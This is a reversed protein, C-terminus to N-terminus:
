PEHRSGGPAPLKHYPRVYSSQEALTKLRRTRASDADSTGDEPEALMRIQGWCRSDMCGHPGTDENVLCYGRGCKDCFAVTQMAM